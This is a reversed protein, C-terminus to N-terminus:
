LHIEGRFDQDVKLKWNKISHNFIDGDEPLLEVRVFNPSCHNDKIKLERLLRGHDDHDLNYHTKNKTIIASFFQCM